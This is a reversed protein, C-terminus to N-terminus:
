RYYKICRELAPIRDDLLLEEQLIKKMKDLKSIFLVYSDGSNPYSFLGYGRLSMIENTKIIKEPLFKYEFEELHKLENKTALEIQHMFEYDLIFSVIEQYQEGKYDVYLFQKTKLGYTLLDDYIDFSERWKLTTELDFDHDSFIHLAIEENSM